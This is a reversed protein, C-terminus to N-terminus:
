SEESLAATDLTEVKLGLGEFYKRERDCDEVGWGKPLNHSIM